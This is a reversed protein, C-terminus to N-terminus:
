GGTVPPFFAVEDGDKVPVDFEAHEQNIAARVTRLDAFAEAFGDGRSKLWAALDALTAVSAPLTVDEAGVGTKAKLSAFYLIKM